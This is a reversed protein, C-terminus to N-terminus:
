DCNYHMKIFQESVTRQGDVLQREQLKATTFLVQRAQNRRAWVQCFLRLPIPPFTVWKRSFDPIGIFAVSDESIYSLLRWDTKCGGDTTFVRSYTKCGGTQRAVGTQQAALPGGHMWM